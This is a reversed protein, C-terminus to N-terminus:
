ATADAWGRYAMVMRGKYIGEEPKLIKRTPTGDLPKELYIVDDTCVWHGTQGNEERIAAAIEGVASLLEDQVESRSKGTAEVRFRTIM